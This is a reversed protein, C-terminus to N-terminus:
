SRIPFYNTILHNLDNLHPFIPSLNDPLYYPEGYYDEFQEAWRVLRMIENLNISELQKSRLLNKLVMINTVLIRTEVEKAGKTTLAGEKERAPDIGLVMKPFQHYSSRGKGFIIGSWYGYQDYEIAQLYRRYWPTGDALHVVERMQRMLQKREQFIQPQAEPYGPYSAIARSLESCILVVEEARTQTAEPM